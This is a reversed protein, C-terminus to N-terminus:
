GQAAAADVLRGLFLVAGTARHRVAFLFPRDLVMEFPDTPASVAAVEVGTAAAAETGEEDVTITAEHVVDDLALREGADGEAMGTFDAASSFASEMGMAQLHDPLQLKTRFSFRPLRVTGEQRETAAVLEDLRAADLSREFSRFTGEAPLLLVMETHGGEYPLRLVQDGDVTAYPAKVSEAMTPVESTSGDLATFPRPETAEESFTDAWSARFYVANALVLRTRTTISRPGFLEPIEGETHDAVWANIRQRARDPAEAFDVEGLGAGYYRSLTDLFAQRFPYGTQGWLANAGLLRFPAGGEDSPTESPPTPTPTPTGSTDALPLDSRLAAVAEHLAEGTPAFRMAAAMEERTQGRAGAYTMALAVGVSYPSLFRNEGPAADALRASLALGFNANGAVFGETPADVDAPTNMEPTGTVTPPTGTSTAPREGLCGALAATAALPLFERRRM